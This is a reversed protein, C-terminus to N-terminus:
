VTHAPMMRLQCSLLQQMPPWLIKAQLSNSVTSSISTPNKLQAARVPRSGAPSLTQLSSTSFLYPSWLMSTLALLARRGGACCVHSTLCQLQQKSASCDVSSMGTACSQSREQTPLLAATISWMAQRNQCCLNGSNSSSGSTSRSRQRPRSIPQRKPAIRHRRLAQQARSRPPRYATHCLLNEAQQIVCVAKLLMCKCLIANM